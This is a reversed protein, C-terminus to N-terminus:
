SFQTILCKPTTHLPGSLVRTINHDESDRSEGRTAVIVEVTKTSGAREFEPPVHLIWRNINAAHRERIITAKHAVKFM